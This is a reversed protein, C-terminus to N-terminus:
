AAAQRALASGCRQGGETIGLWHAQQAQLWAPGAQAGMLLATTAATGAVLCQPAVVTISALTAVPWATFPSLLHHLREGQHHFGREMTGSTALGGSRLQLHAMVKGPQLPHRIGISWAQGDAQPGFVRLDGGLDIYGGRAGAARAQAAAADAAYEKVVGGLDIEMGPQPLILRPAQWILRQWGVLALAAERQAPTPLQGARFDWLRRLSGTSLDFLGDSHRWALAAYDLLGATEADVEIGDPDGACTNIRQTLSDPRYRSYRQELRAVEAQAAAAAQQATGSDYAWLQLSCPSGMASFTQRLTATM